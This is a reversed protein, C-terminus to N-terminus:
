PCFGQPHQSRGLARKLLLHTTPHSFIPLLIMLFYQGYGLPYPCPEPSIGCSPLIFLIFIAKLFM